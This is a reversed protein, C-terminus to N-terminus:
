SLYDIYLVSCIDICVPALLFFCIVFYYLVVSLVATRYITAWRSVPGTWVTCWRNIRPTKQRVSTWRVPICTRCPWSERYCVLFLILLCLGLCLQWSSCNVVVTLYGNESQTYYFSFKCKRISNEFIRNLKKQVHM